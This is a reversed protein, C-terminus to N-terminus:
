VYDANNVLPGIKTVESLWHPDNVGHSEIIQQCKAHSIGIVSAQIHYRCQYIHHYEM